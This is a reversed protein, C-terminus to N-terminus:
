GSGDGTDRPLGYRGEWDKRLRGAKVLKCLTVRLSRENLKPPDFRARITDVIQWGQLEDPGDDDGQLVAFIM